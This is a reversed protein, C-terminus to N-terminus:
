VEDEHGGAGDTRDGVWNKDGQRWGQRVSGM